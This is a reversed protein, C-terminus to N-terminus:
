GCTILSYKEASFCFNLSVWPKEKTESEGLNDNDDSSEEYADNSGSDYIEEVDGTGPSPDVEM